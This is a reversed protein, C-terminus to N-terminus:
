RVKAWPDTPATPAQKRELAAKYAADLERQKKQAQMAQAAAADQKEAATNSNEGGQRAQSFAIGSLLVLTFAAVVLTRM